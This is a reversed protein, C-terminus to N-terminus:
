DNAVVTGALKDWPTQRARGVFVMVLGILPLLFLLIPGLVPVRAILLYILLPAVRRVATPTDVVGGSPTVVSLGLLRKGITGGRTTVMVLEYVILLVAILLSGLTVILDDQESFALAVGTPIAVATAIMVWVAIDIVRAAIRRVPQAPVAGGHGFLDRSGGGPVPQADGQWMSGDWYRQTGPPDGQAYYWGAPQRDRADTM